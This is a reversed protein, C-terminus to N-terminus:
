FGAAVHSVVGGGLGLSRPGAPFGVRVPAAADIVSGSPQAGEVLGVVLPFMARGELGLSQSGGALRGFYLFCGQDLGLPRAGKAFGVSVPFLVGGKMGLAGESLVMMHPAVRGELVWPREGEALGAAAPSVVSGGLDLSRPGAPVDVRVPAAADIVSGSPQAGEVLGVVLPSM